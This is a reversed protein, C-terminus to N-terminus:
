PTGPATPPRRVRRSERAAPTDFPVVPRREILMPNGDFVDCVHDLLPDGTTLLTVLEDRRRILEAGLPTPIAGRVRLRGRAVSLTLGAEEAAVLLDRATV